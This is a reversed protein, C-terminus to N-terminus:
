SNMVAQYFQYGTLEGKKSVTMEAVLCLRDVQPNLSCLGNSLIEPLMPIVRNPFYVSNGRNAAELDLATKPRVYYSVDAIAVW